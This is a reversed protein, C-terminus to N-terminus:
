RVFAKVPGVIADSVSHLLGRRPTAKPTAEPAAEASERVPAVPPDAVAAPEAAPTEYPFATRTYAVTQRTAGAPAIPELAIPARAQATAAADRAEGTSAVAKEVHSDACHLSVEMGRLFGRRAWGAMAAQNLAKDRRDAGTVFRVVDRHPIVGRLAQGILRNARARMRTKESPMDADPGLVDDLASIEQALSRCNVARPAAYPDAKAEKLVEPTEHGFLGLEIASSPEGPRVPEARVVLPAAVVTAAFAASMNLAALSRM